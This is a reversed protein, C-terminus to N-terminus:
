AASPVCMAKHKWDRFGQRSWRIADGIQEGPGRDALKPTVTGADSLEPTRPGPTEASALKTGTAKEESNKELFVLRLEQTTL